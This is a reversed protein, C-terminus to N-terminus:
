TERMLQSTKENMRHPTEALAVQLTELDVLGPLPLFRMKNLQM